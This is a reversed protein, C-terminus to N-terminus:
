LDCVMESMDIVRSLKIYKANVRYVFTNLTM